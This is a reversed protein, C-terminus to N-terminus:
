GRPTLASYIKQSRYPQRAQEHHNSTALRRNVPETVTNTTAIVAIFVIIPMQTTRDNVVQIDNTLFQWTSVKINTTALKTTMISVAHVM